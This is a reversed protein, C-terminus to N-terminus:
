ISPKSQEDQYGQSLEIINGEPDAVWVGRWGPIISDFGLPGLKITADKGLEALKAEVDPVSFALHRLGPFGYGDKDPPYLPSDERAKFLELHVNGSKLFVIQEGKGLPVTRAREFGFHKVYFRELAAPDRCTIGVHAFEVQATQRELIESENSMVHRRNENSDV